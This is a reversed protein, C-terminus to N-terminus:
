FMCVAFATDQFFLMCGFMISCVRVAIRKLVIRCKNFQQRKIERRSLVASNHALGVSLLVVKLSTGSQHRTLDLVHAGLCVHNCVCMQQGGVGGGGWHALSFM